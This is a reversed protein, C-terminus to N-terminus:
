LLGLRRFSSVGSAAFILHDVIVCDIAEAANALRRTARCDSQSPKPDGSPHNHAVILGASDYAIADAIIARIPLDAHSERGSHRSLHLCRADQDVHAVFLSEQTPDTDALCGAFFREASDFGSLTLPLEARQIRM